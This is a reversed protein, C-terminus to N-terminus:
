TVFIYGCKRELRSQHRPVIHGPKWYWPTTLCAASIKVLEEGCKGPEGRTSKSDAIIKIEHDHLEVSRVTPQSVDQLLHLDQYFDFIQIIVFALSECKMQPFLSSHMNCTHIHLQLQLQIQTTTLWLMLAHMLMYHM